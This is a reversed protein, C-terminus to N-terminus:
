RINYLSSNATQKQNGFDESAEEESFLANPSQTCLDIVGKLVVFRNLIRYYVMNDMSCCNESVLFSVLSCISITESLAFLWESTTQTTYGSLILFILRGDSDVNEPRECAVLSITGVERHCLKGSM